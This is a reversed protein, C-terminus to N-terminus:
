KGKGFRRKRSKKCSFRFEGTKQEFDTIGLRTMMAKAEVQESATAHHAAMKEVSELVTDGDDFEPNQPLYHIVRNKALIVQGSDPEELGAIIKLLTSKGTGNIGIVGVKEGEQLFFSANDLMKRETYSKTVNEVTLINM